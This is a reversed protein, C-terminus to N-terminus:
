LKVSQATNCKNRSGTVQGTIRTKGRGVNEEDKHNIFGHDRAISEIHRMWHKRLYITEDDLDFIQLERLIYENKNKDQQM